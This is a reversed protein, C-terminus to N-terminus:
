RQKTNTTTPEQYEDETEKITSLIQLMSSKSLSNRLIQSARKRRNPISTVALSTNPSAATKTDLARNGAEREPKKAKRFPTELIGKTKQPVLIRTKLEAEPSESISLSDASSLRSTPELHSAQLGGGYKSTDPPLHVLVLTKGREAVGEPPTGVEKSVIAGHKETDLKAGQKEPLKGRRSDGTGESSHDVTIEDRKDSKESIKPDPRDRLVSDKSDRKNYLEATYENIKIHKSDDMSPESMDDAGESGISSENDQSEHSSSSMLTAIVRNFFGTSDGTSNSNRSSDDGLSQLLHLDGNLDRSRPKKNSMSYTDHGHSRARPKNRSSINVARNHTESYSRSSRTIGRSCTEITPETSSTSATYEDESSSESTIEHIITTNLSNHSSQEEMKTLPLTLRATGRNDEDDSTAHMHASSENLLTTGGNNELESKPQEKISNQQSGDSDSRRPNKSLMPWFGHRKLLTRNTPSRGNDEHKSDRQVLQVSESTPLPAVNEGSVSTAELSTESSQNSQAQAPAYESQVRRTTAAAPRDYVTFSRTASVGYTNRLMTKYKGQTQVLVADSNDTVTDPLTSRSSQKENSRSRTIRPTKFNQGDVPGTLQSIISGADKDIMAKDVTLVIPIEIREDSKTEQSADVGMGDEEIERLVSNDTNTLWDETKNMKHSEIAPGRMNSSPRMDTHMLSGIWTAFGEKPSLSSTISTSSFPLVSDSKESSGKKPFKETNQQSVADQDRVKFEEVKPHTTCPKSFLPSWWDSILYANDTLASPQINKGTTPAGDGGPISLQSLAPKDEQLGFCTSLHSGTHDVLSWGFLGCTVLFPVNNAVAGSEVSRVDAEDVPEISVGTFKEFIIQQRRDNGGVDRTSGHFDEQLALLQLNDSNPVSKKKTLGCKAANGRKPRFMSFFMLLNLPNSRPNPTDSDPDDPQEKSKGMSECSSSETDPLGEYGTAGTKRQKKSRFTAMPKELKSSFDRAQETDSMMSIDDIFIELPIIASLMANHAFVAAMLVGFYALMAFYSSGVPDEWAFVVIWSLGAISLFFILFKGAFSNPLGWVKVTRESALAGWVNAGCCLFVYYSIHWCVRGIRFIMDASDTTASVIGGTLVIITSLIVFLLALGSDLVGCRQPKNTVREWATEIVARFFVASATWVVYYVMSAIYFAPKYRVSDYGKQKGYNSIFGRILFGIAVGAFALCSSENRGVLFLHLTLITAVAFLFFDLAYLPAWYCGEEMDPDYSCTPDPSDLLFCVVVYVLGLFLVVYPSYCNAQEQEFTEQQNALEKGVLSNDEAKSSDDNRTSSM